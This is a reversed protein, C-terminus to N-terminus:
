NEAITRQIWAAFFPDDFHYRLRGAEEETRLIDRELLVALSKQISSSPRKLKRAVAASQLNQGGFDLVARLTQGQIPSLDLWLQTYLPDLRGVWELLAGEVDAVSLRHSFRADEFANQALAQVNYPVDDALDLLAGLAGDEIAIDASQFRARLVPLFEARPIQGLFLPEGLRYFPRAPDLVMQSLLRTKSGAFVYGLHSHTQVAARLQAEAEDGGIVLLQQFEDLALGLPQEGALRELADLAEIFGPVETPRHAAGLAVSWNGNAPDFALEPKLVGFLSRIREGVKQVPGSLRKAAETVLARTLAEVTSFAEVNFRLVQVGSAQLETQAVALLSTKGYRRPGILFLKGGEGLARKVRALEDRRDILEERRLERGFEFPNDIMGFPMVGVPIMGFPTVRRVAAGRVSLLHWGFSDDRREVDLIPADHLAHLELVHAVRAVGDLAGGKVVAGTGVFEHEEVNGGTVLAAVHNSVEGRAHALLREDGEGDAAAQFGGVFHGSDERCAGVFHEDVRAGESRGFEDFRAGFAKAHLTHDDGYVGLPAALFVPLDEQMAPAGRGAFTGDRPRAFGFRATRAFDQEGRHVAVARLRAVVEFEGAGDGIGKGDGHNCAAARAGNVVDVVGESDASGFGGQDRGYHM